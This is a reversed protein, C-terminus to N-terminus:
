TNAHKLLETSILAALSPLTTHLTQADSPNDHYYTELYLTSAKTAKLEYLNTRPEIRAIGLANKLSKALKAMASNSPYHMLLHGRTQGKFANTHLPLHLIKQYGQAKYTDYLRNSESVINQLKQSTSLNHPQPVIIHCVIGTYHALYGQILSALHNCHDEESGCILCHNEPQSSPSLIVALKKNM